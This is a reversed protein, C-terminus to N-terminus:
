ERKHHWWRQTGSIIQTVSISWLGKTTRDLEWCCYCHAFLYWEQLNANLYILPLLETLHLRSVLNWLSAEHGSCMQNKLCSASGMPFVTGSIQQTGADGLPDWCLPGTGATSHPCQGDAPQKNPVEGSMCLTKWTCKLAVGLPALPRRAKYSCSRCHSTCSCQCEHLLPQRHDRSKPTIYVWTVASTLTLMRHPKTQSLGASVRSKNGM